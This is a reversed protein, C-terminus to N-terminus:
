LKINNVNFKRYDREQVKSKAVKVWEKSFVKTSSEQAWRQCIQLPISGVFWMDKKPDHVKAAEANFDILDEVDQISEIVSQGAADTHIYQATKAVADYDLLRKSM